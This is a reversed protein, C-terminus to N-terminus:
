FITSVLRKERLEDWFAAPIKVNAMEINGKVRKASSTNLAIAEVGPASLGFQVCAEAPKVDYKECITFFMERWNFLQADAERDVLRYNYYDSGILFGANFVASNIITIGQEKLTTMFVLLNAPHSHVTMSNAIMVWDLKVDKSIREIIRWDKAGVGVAKVKGMEKLDSLARYADLIDQYRKAAEEENNAALLYEDPDHVSVMQPIYEGLLDNGQEFCAIIGDYSINQVADYELDKWVGQEFTPEPGVLETRMWGLKNSIIVDDPHVGLDKLSKGLAELALGAGYKGASDFVVPKPSHKICEEVIELKVSYDLATYLNGLASTGFIVRPLQIKSEHIDTM